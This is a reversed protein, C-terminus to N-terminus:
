RSARVLEEWIKVMAFTDLECYKLLDHRAKELEEPEMHEMAPYVSMAEGGNHVGELNHYDLSPDDPYLAPLVDKISFSGNMEKKYYYGKNFPIILDVLNGCVSMLHDALDPFLEALDRIRSAEFSKNYATVCADAPIDACLREALKRRPDTGPEALFEKHRLEGGESEIYHLSYQFPTQTYPTTGIYRPVAPNVAEFDLFYLPYSLTGLFGRIKEKDVITGDTHLEADIQLKQIGSLKMGSTEIDEYSRIGNEYLSLKSDFNMRYMNFVSPYPLYRTCYKWFACSYPAHCARSLDVEPEREDSLLEEAMALNPEIWQSERDADASIDIIRFLRRLDLRGDYVYDSNLIVLFVGSVRVGCKELVYKQYAVDAAYVEKNHSSSKVEYIAWGDERKRLIDVACYLGEYSFSAECIVSTGKAMEDGTREIMRTLDLVGDAYVTVETYDGFLGMALDGVENGVDMRALAADDLVMEEPRYKRLWAIKPCQWLGTYKSKSFNLM